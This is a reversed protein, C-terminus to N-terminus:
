NKTTKNNRKYFHQEIDVITNAGSEVSTDQSNLRWNKVNKFVYFELLHEQSFDLSKKQLKIVICRVVIGLAPWATLKPSLDGKCLHPFPQNSM